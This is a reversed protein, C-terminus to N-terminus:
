RQQRPGSRGPLVPVRVRPDPEDDRKGYTDDHVVDDEHCAQSNQAHEITKRACWFEIVHETFGNGQGQHKSWWEQKCPEEGPLPTTSASRVGPLAEISPLVSASPAHTRGSCSVLVRTALYLCAHRKAQDQIQRQDRQM